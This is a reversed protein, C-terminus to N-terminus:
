TKTLRELSLSALTREELSRDYSSSELLPPVLISSATTLFNEDVASHLFRSMWAVTFLSARALSPTGNVMCNALAALFGKSGSKLLAMAAKQQWIETAKEEENLNEDKGYFSDDSHENFGALKLLWKESTAEEIYSPFLGGLMLLARASKEQIKESCTQCNMASTLADVAEERYMSCNSPDGLLDLQLLIAAVLPREESSARQLYALFIHMTSLGGWGNNLRDLFKMMQTRRALCLLETLLAIACRNCNHNELVILELLSAKNLNEALYSRCKEDAQICCIIISATNQREHIEGKEIRGVLLALGGHSVVARANEFNKDEDFGNVLQELFYFAAVQASCCVTFLTQIQDGFELVRLILPVWETSIMQKAKPKLLYLLVSAKLFLSTSRLLKIFIELQPDFNLVIQRNSENKAVLEALMSIALELIEDENSAFLVELMGEIIPAKSLEAEVASDGHSNLWTKVIVRIALECESLDDSSCITTNARSLESTHNRNKDENRRSNNRSHEGNVVFEEAPTSQCAFLRFRESKKSESWLEAKQNRKSHAYNFNNYNDTQASVKHEKQLNWANISARNLNDLDMSRRETPGFVTRFLNKNQSSYSTYSDSSRRRSSGYSTRSPLPVSPVAPLQAGIKLWNKYYLAFQTTGMDMRDNFAKGLAKMRKDKEGYDLNSLLELEKHYWVKLHLLHPLFFHEWLDPLLHTRSLYPSDCFVQLLHRASIRDNKDLKYIISLYLQAFASLHSNPIGCTSSHRTKKSNLSAVISLLQISNRLLKMRHERDAGKGEVLKDISEVGLELNALIGNDPEKRKRRELCSNFKERVSERFIEDKLYRGIYGGLISIVARVAVEDIAPEERGIGDIRSSKSNSGERESSKISYEQRSVAKDSGQKSFDFSKLDHCIYIPLAISDHDTSTRDKLKMPKPGETFQRHGREFGEEALLQQLSAM